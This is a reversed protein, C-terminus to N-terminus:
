RGAGDNLMAEAPALDITSGLPLGDPERNVPVNGVGLPASHDYEPLDDIVDADADFLVNDCGQARAFTLVAFLDDPIADAGEGCNEDHAYIFWGWPGYPGGCVPWKPQPTSNLMAATKATVHATSLVLIKRFELTM